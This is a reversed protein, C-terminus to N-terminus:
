DLKKARSSTAKMDLRLMIADAIEVALTALHLSNYENKGQHSSLGIVAAKVLEFHKDQYDKLSLKGPM